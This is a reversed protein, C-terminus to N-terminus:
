ARAVVEVNVVVFIADPHAEWERWGASLAQLERRTALGYQVAQEAFGSGTSREAWVDAWWRVSSPDAYTWNSSSVELDEFGAAAVWSPLRRGADADAGNRQCVAHYLELWRSLMDHDPYWVFSRYVADRVALWGGPRLVRHMEHLARVPDTLHQLVQHAHVVDFSAPPFELGYVDVISFLAGHRAGAAAEAIVAASRDVGVTRGPAVLAALDNTISGPGCGVDLLDQGPHLRPLLYAASDAAARSRHSRLVPESHGHTYIDDM